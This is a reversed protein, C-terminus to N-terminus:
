RLLQKRDREWTEPRQKWALVLWVALRVLALGQSVVVLGCWLRLRRCDM